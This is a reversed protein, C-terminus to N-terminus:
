YVAYAYRDRVPMADASGDADKAATDRLFVAVLVVVVVGCSPCVISDGSKETRHDPVLPTADLVM